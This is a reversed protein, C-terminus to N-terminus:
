LKYLAYKAIKDPAKNPDLFRQDGDQNTEKLLNGGKEWQIGRPAIWPEDFLYQQLASFSSYWCVSKSWFVLILSDFVGEDGAHAVGVHIRCPHMDSFQVSVLPVWRCHGWLYM